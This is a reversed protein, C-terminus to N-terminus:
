PQTALVTGFQSPQNEPDLVAQKFAQLQDLEDAAFNLVDAVLADAVIQALGRIGQPTYTRVAPDNCDPIPKGCRPCYLYANLSTCEHM